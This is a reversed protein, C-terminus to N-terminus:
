DSFHLEQQLVIQCIRPYCWSIPTLGFSETNSMTNIHFVRIHPITFNPYPSGIGESIGQPWTRSFTTRAPNSSSKSFKVDFKKQQPYWILNNRSINEQSSNSLLHELIVVLTPLKKKVEVLTSISSMYDCTSINKTAICAKSKTSNKSPDEKFCYQIGREQGSSWMRWNTQIGLRLWQLVQIIVYCPCCTRFFKPTFGDEASNTSSTKLEGNTELDGHQSPSRVSHWRSVINKASEKGQSAKCEFDLRLCGSIRFFRIISHNFHLIINRCCTPKRQFKQTSFLKSRCPFSQSPAPPLCFVFAEPGTLGCSQHDLPASKSFGSAASSSSRTSISM